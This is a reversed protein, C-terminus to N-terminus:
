LPGFPYRLVLVQKRGRKPCEPLLIVVNTKSPASQQPVLYHRNIRGMRQVLSDAPAPDTYLIDANIDLSAEVVQTAVVICGSTASGDRNLLYAESTVLNEQKLRDAATFRSHLLLTRNAEIKEHLKTYLAQATNVKNVVILVRKGNLCHEVMEEMLEENYESHYAFRISHRSSSGLAPMESEYLNVIQCPNLGLSSELRKRIFPPLTATMVLNRGGFFHNLELLATVIAAAKPDFAQIEDVVLCAGM